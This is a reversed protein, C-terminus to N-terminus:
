ITQIPLLSPRDISIQNAESREHSRSSLSLAHVRQLKEKKNYLYNNKLKGFNKKNIKKKSISGLSLFFRTPVYTSAPRVHMTVGEMHGVLM